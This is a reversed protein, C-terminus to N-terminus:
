EGTYMKIERELFEAYAGRLASLGKGNAKVKRCAIEIRSMVTPAGVDMIEALEKYSATKHQLAYVATQYVPISKKLETNNKDFKLEYLFHELPESM